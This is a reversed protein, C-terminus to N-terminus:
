LHVRLDVTSPREIQRNDAAKEAQLLRGSWVKGVWASFGALIASWGGVVGIPDTLRVNMELIASRKPDSARM